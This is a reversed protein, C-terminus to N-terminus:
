CLLLLLLPLLISPLGLPLLVAGMTPSTRPLELLVLLLLLLALPILSSPLSTYWAEWERSDVSVGM